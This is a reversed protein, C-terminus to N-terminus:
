LNKPNSVTVQAVRWRTILGAIGLGVLTITGPEPSYTTLSYDGQEPPAADSNFYSRVSGFTVSGNSWTGAFDYFYQDFEQNFIGTWSQYFVYGGDDLVTGTFTAQPINTTGNWYTLAGTAAGGTIPGSGYGYCQLGDSTCEWIMNVNGIDPSFSLEFCLPGGNLCSGVGFANSAPFDGTMWPVTINGAQAPSSAGICFLFIAIISVLLTRVRVKHM